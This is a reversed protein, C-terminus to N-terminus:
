FPIENSSVENARVNSTVVELLRERKFVNDNPKINM